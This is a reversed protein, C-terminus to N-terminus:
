VKVFYFLKVVNDDSRRRRTTAVCNNEAALFESFTAASIDGILFNGIQAPFSPASFNSASHFVPWQLKM